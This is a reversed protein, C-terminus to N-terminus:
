TNCPIDKHHFAFKALRYIANACDMDEWYGMHRRKGDHGIRAQWAGIRRHWSVGPRGSTNSRYRTKNKMNEAPTCERLNAFRNDARRQNIHDIEAAPWQGTM